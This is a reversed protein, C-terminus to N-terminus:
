NGARKNDGFKTARLQQYHQELMTRELLAQVLEPDQALLRLTREKLDAQMAKEKLLRSEGSRKNLAWEAEAHGLDDALKPQCSRKPIRTGTAKEFRCEIDMEDDTNLENYRAYFRDDAEVVAKWAADLSRQEGRVIIEDLTRARAPNASVPAAADGALAPLALPCQILLLSLFPMSRRM